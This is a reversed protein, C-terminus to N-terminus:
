GRDRRDAADRLTLAALVIARTSAPTLRLSGQRWERPATYRQGLLERLRYRTAVPGVVTGADDVEFGLQAAAVAHAPEPDTWLDTLIERVEAALTDHDLRWARLEGRSPLSAAADIATRWMRDRAANAVEPSGPAYILEVAGADTRALGIARSSGSATFTEVCSVMDPFPLPEVADDVAFRRIDVDGHVGDAVNAGGFHLHLPEAGTIDRLVASMMWALQGRWGVDVLALRRDSLDLGDLYEVLLERADQARKLITARVLPDALMARWADVHSRPLPRLPDLAALEPHDRVDEPALAIRELLSRFPVRHRSTHIFARDDADGVAMWAEIGLSAAAAVSWARRSALEVYRLEFGDWHDAPMREAMRLPLEGDRALFGVDVIGEDACQDRVWLLFATFCQAGLAGTEVVAADLSDTSRQLLRAQRAAAAVATGASGPRRGMASESRTPEASTIAVGRVGAAEAMAVDSWLDNGIHVVRREHPRMVEFLEGTSKAKGLESSIVLEDDDTALGHSRLATWLQPRHLHMDTVFVLPVGRSRLRQIGEVAGPVPHMLAAEVESETAVIDPGFAVLAPHEALRQLTARPLEAAARARAAVYRSPTDPGHDDEAGLMAGTIWWVDEARLVRRTLVTDFIDISVAEPRLDLVTDILAEFRVDRGTRWHRDLKVLARPVMPSRSGVCRLAGRVPRRVRAPGTLARRVRAADNVVTWWRSAAQEVWADVELMGGGGRDEAIAQAMADLDGSPVLGEPAVVDPIGGEDFALVRCGMTLALIVTGSQTAAVYPAVVLPRDGLAELLQEQPIPQPSTLDCTAYGLERLHGWTGEPLSGRGCVLVGIQRRQAEPVRELIEPFLDIGKDDRLAGVFAVWRRDRSLLHSPQPDPLATHHYPPHPCVMVREAAAHEVDERLREAHIVVAVSRGLLFRRALRMWVSERRRAVPNHLVVVVPRGLSALIGFVLSEVAFRTFAVVVVRDRILSGWGTAALGRALHLAQHVPSETGFNAPLLRRWRVQKPPRHEGNVPDLQVVDAGRAALLSAIEAAYPNVGDTNYLVVKM